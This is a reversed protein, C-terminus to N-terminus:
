PWLNLKHGKAKAKAVDAEDWRNLVFILILM